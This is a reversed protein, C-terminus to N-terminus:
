ELGRTVWMFTQVDINDSAGLPRLQELLQAAMRQLAEYCTWKPSASYQLDFAMRVATQQVIAPKLVMFRAPDALFPVLTVNPWTLVRSGKTPAPLNAIAETLGQFTDAAPSDVFDLVAKLVRGAASGDKLGNSAALKEFRHPIDTAEYLGVLGRTVDELAGAALLERGRGKGFLEVFRDHTERKHALEGRTLKPDHFLGPYDKRFGEIAFELPRAAQGHARAPGAAAAPKAKKPRSPGVAVRDLAPDSQVEALALQATALQLRRRPGQESGALSPFHVVVNPLRVEVAKGRGWLPHEVLMGVVLTDEIM